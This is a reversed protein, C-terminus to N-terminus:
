LGCGDMWGDYLGYILIVGFELCCLGRGVGRM